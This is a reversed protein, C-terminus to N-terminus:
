ALDSCFCGNSRSIDDIYLYYTEFNGWKILNDPSFWGVLGGVSEEQGASCLLTVICSEM